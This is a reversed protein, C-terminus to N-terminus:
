IKAVLSIFSENKNLLFDMIKKNEILSQLLNKNFENNIIIDFPKM